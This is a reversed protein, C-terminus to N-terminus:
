HIRAELMHHLHSWYVNVIIIIYYNINIIVGIVTTESATECKCVIEIMNGAM